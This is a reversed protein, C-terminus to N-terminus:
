SSEQGALVRGYEEMALYGNLHPHRSGVAVDRWIRQQPNDTRFGSAGHLDLMLDLAARCDHASEYLNLHLRSGDATSLPLGADVQATVSLMTRQACQVLTTAEALWHRAGPSDGMRAYSTMFPKRDSAFMAKILDLAGLTAGVLPALVAIGFLQMTAVDPPGSFAGAQDYPILIDDAVVTHSGTGRMGATDWSHEISLDSMPILVYSFAGDVMAAVGAWQADECGSVTSWRGTVRVGDPDRRGTGGPKGSGCILMDPDTLVRGLAAAEIHAVTTAMVKGTLCTGAIWATSPCGRGLETLTHAVETASAATEPTGLAFAGAQRAAQLSEATPHGQEETKAANAALIDIM